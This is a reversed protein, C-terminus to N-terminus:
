SSPIVYKCEKILFFVADRSETMKKAQEKKIIEKDSSALIPDSVGTDFDYQILISIEKEQM